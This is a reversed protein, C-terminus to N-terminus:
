LLLMGGCARSVARMGGELTRHVYMSLLLEQVQGANRWQLEKMCIVFQLGLKICTTAVSAVKPRDYLLAEALPSSGIFYAL